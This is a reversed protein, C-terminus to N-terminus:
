FYPASMVASDHDQPTRGSLRFIQIPAVTWQYAVDVFPVCVETTISNSSIETEVSISAKVTPNRPLSYALLLQMPFYSVSPNSV